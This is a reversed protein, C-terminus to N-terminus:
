GLILSWIIIVSSLPLESVKSAKLTHYISLLGLPAQEARLDPQYWISFPFWGSVGTNCCSSLYGIDTKDSDHPNGLSFCTRRSCLLSYRPANEVSFSYFALEPHLQCNGDELCLSYISNARPEPGSTPPPPPLCLLLSPCLCAFLCLCFSM